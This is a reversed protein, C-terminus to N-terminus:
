IYDYVLRACFPAQLVGSFGMDNFIALKSFQPHVGTVPRRDLLTPRFGVSKSVIQYPVQIMKELQKQLTIQAKLTPGENQDKCDYISCARYRHNGLPIM